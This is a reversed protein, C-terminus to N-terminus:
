SYFLEIYSSIEAPSKNTKFMRMLTDATVDPMNSKIPLMAVIQDLEYGNGFLAEMIESSFSDSDNIDGEPLTNGASMSGSIVDKFLDNDSILEKDNELLDVDSEDSEYDESYEYDSSRSSFFLFLAFLSEFVLFGLIMSLISYDNFCNNFPDSLVLMLADWFGMSQNEIIYIASSLVYGAFVFLATGLIGFIIYIIIVSRNNEM